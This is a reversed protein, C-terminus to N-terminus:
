ILLKCIPYRNNKDTPYNHTHEAIKNVVIWEFMDGDLNNVIIENENIDIEQINITIMAIFAGNDDILRMAKRGNSTYTSHQIKVNTGEFELQEM